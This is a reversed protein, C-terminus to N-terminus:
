VIEKSKKPLSKMKLFHPLRHVKIVRLPESWRLKVSKNESSRTFRALVWAM